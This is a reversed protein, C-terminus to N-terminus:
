FVGFVFTGNFEGVIITNDNLYDRIINMKDDEDMDSEIGVRYESVIDDAHMENYDCCLAIIDLEVPEGVANSYQELYDFLARKGDYSFEENRKMNRFADCFDCFGVTQVIAM